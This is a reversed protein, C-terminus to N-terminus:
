EPAITPVPGVLQLKHVISRLDPILDHLRDAYDLKRRVEVQRTGAPRVDYAVGGHETRFPGADILQEVYPELRVEPDTAARHLLLLFSKFSLPAPVVALASSGDLVNATAFRDEEEALDVYKNWVSALEGFLEGAQKWIATEETHLQGLRERAEATEEETVRAAEAAIVSRVASLDGELGNLAALDKRERATIKAVEGNLESGPRRKPSSYWSKERAEQLQAAYEAIRARAADVEIALEAEKARLLELKSGEATATVIDAGNGV